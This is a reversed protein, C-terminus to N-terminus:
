SALSPPFHIHHYHHVLCLMPRPLLSDHVSIMHPLHDAVEPFDFPCISAVYCNPANHNHQKKKELLLRCVLNSQSQLESTHEESRVRMERGGDTGPALLDFPERPRPLWAASDPRPPAVLAAAIRFQQRPYPLQSRLAAPLSDTPRVLPDLIRAWAAALSDAGPALYLLTAGSAASVTGLLGARVYRVPRGLDSSCVDSSWDCDFRTHRRRSSFFFFFSLHVRM